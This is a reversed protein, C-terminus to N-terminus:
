KLPQTTVAQQHWGGHFFCGGLGMTATLALACVILIRMTGERNESVSKLEWAETIPPMKSV